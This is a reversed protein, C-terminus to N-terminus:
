NSLTSSVMKQKFWLTMFDATLKQEIELAIETPCFITFFIQTDGVESTAVQIHPEPGTINVELRNEILQNYRIAVEKFDSCYLSARTYLEDIFEFPNVSDDRVITFHHMAYRKLFNLNKIVSTILQSNPLYLTKGTYQYDDVNVELLTLKAWDTSHVEGYHNGVQVWDGIRFPRSSLIYVFGIFCQIFERTALVIAVIFAAISFAFKQIEESWINFVMVIILVTFINNVVNIQLRKDQKSKRKIRRVILYKIMYFISIFLLAIVFKNNALVSSLAKFNNTHNLWEM